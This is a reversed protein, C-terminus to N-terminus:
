SVISHRVSKFVTIQADTEM